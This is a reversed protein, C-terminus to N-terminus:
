KVRWGRCDMGASFIMFFGMGSSCRTRFVVNSPSIWFHKATAVSGTLRHLSILLATWCLSGKSSYSLTRQDKWLLSLPLKHHSCVNPPVRHCVWLASLSYGACWQLPWCHIKGKVLTHFPQKVQLIYLFYHFIEWLRFDNETNLNLWWLTLTISWACM